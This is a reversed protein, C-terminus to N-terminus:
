SVLRFFFSNLNSSNYTKRARELLESRNNHYDFRNCTLGCKETAEIGGTKESTSNKYACPHFNFKLISLSELFFVIKQSFSLFTWPRILRTIRSTRLLGLKELLLHSPPLSPLLSSTAVETCCSAAGKVKM